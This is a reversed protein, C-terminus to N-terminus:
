EYESSTLNFNQLYELAEQYVDLKWHKKGSLRTTDMNDKLDQIKVQTALRNTSVRKIFTSYDEGEMKTLHKLADLIECNFGEAKLDELTTPTDEIVDHLLAVIREDETNCHLAVRIPHLIYPHGGKDVQEKHAVCAINLAKNLM